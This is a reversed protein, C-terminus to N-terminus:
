HSCILADLPPTTTVQKMAIAAAKIMFDMVSVAHSEELGANLAARMSLVKEVDIDVSLYYHPVTQKAISAALARHAAAGSLEYEVFADNM